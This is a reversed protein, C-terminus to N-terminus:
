PAIKQSSIKRPPHPIKEPPNKDPPNKGSSNKRLVMQLYKDFSLTKNGGGNFNYTHFIIYLVYLIIYLIEILRNILSQNIKQRSMITKKYSLYYEVM